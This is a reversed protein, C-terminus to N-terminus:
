PRAWPQGITKLPGRHLLNMLPSKLNKTFKKIPELINAM